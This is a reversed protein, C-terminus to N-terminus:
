PRAEPREELAEAAANYVAQVSGSLSLLREGGFDDRRLDITVAHKERMLKLGIGGKGVVKGVSAGPLLLMLKLQAAEHGPMGFLPQQQAAAGEHLYMSAPPPPLATTPPPAAGMLGMPGGIVGLSAQAEAAGAAAAAEAAGPVSSLKTCVLGLCRLASAMPPRICLLRGGLCPQRQLDINAGSLERLQSLGSGGKGVFMGVKSDDIVLKIASAVAAGSPAGMGGQMGYAPAAAQPPMLSTGPCAQLPLPYGAPHQPQMGMCAGGQMGMANQMAMASQMGMQAPMVGSPMVGSQMPMGSQMQQMANQQMANPPMMPMTSYTEYSRKGAVPQPSAMDWSVGTVGSAQQALQGLMQQLLLLGQQVREPTGTLQVNRESSQDGAERRPMNVKCGSTRGLHRLGSGGKGIFAGVISEPIPVEAMTETTAEMATAAIAPEM